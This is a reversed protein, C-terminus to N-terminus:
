IGYKKTQTTMHINSRVSIWFSPSKGEPSGSAAKEIQTRGWCNCVNEFRSNAVVNKAALLYGGEDRRYRYYFTEKELPADVRPVWNGGQAMYRLPHILGYDSYIWTIGGDSKKSCKEFLVVEELNFCGYDDKGYNPDTVSSPFSSSSVAINKVKHDSFIQDAMKCVDPIYQASTSVKVYECDIIVVLNDPNSLNQVIIGVFTLFEEPVIDLNACFVVKECMGSLRKVQMELNKQAKEQNSDWQDVDVQITPIIIEQAQTNEIFNCWHAYGDASDFLKEIESNILDEHTTLDLIFPAERQVKLVKSLAEDLRGEPYYKKHNRDKTLKFLPLMQKKIDTSLTSFGRLETYTTKIIPIYM